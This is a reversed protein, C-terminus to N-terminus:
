VEVESVRAQDLSSVAAPRRHQLRESKGDGPHNGPQVTWTQRDNVLALLDM